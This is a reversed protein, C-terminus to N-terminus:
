LEWFVAKLPKQKLSAIILTKKNDHGLLLWHLLMASEYNLPNPNLGANQLGKRQTLIFFFVV